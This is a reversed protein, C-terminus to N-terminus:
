GAAIQQLLAEPVKDKLRQGLTQGLMEADQASQIIGSVHDRYIERGDLSAVSGHLIMHGQGDLVAYAGIPTHCSGDLVGLLAREATVCLYTPAHIIQDFIALINTNNEKIEIGVAGQGAAPLMEQPELAVDIENELGLRKLGAVALLTADVQGSRLKEIRTQVNGRLPVIKLDPRQSLLFAQRRVSATGVVAGHPLDALGRLGRDQCLLADRVDERPLMHRIVLGKPLFTPMDKMSHVAADITGALLEEEIEKAFLGKGGEAELLRREGEEPRWDGSTKIIRTEVKLDPFACALAECVMQTQKLALPSGRTGIKIATIRDKM